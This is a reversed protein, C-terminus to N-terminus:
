TMKGCHICKIGVQFWNCGSLNAGTFAIFVGKACKLSGEYSLCRKCIFAEPKLDQSQRIMEVQISSM